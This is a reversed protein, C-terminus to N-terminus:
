NDYNLPNKNMKIISTLGFKRNKIHLLKMFLKRGKDNYPKIDEEM